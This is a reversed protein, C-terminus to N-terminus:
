RSSGWIRRYVDASACLKPQSYHEADAGGMGFRLVLGRMGAEVRARPDTSWNASTSRTFLRVRDGPVIRSHGGGDPFGGPARAGRCRRRFSQRRPQRGATDRSGVLGSLIPACGAIEFATFVVSISKPNRYRQGCAARADAWARSPGDKKLFARGSRHGLNSRVMAARRASNAAPWPAYGTGPLNPAQGGRPLIESAISAKWECGDAPHDFTRSAHGHRGIVHRFFSFDHRQDSRPKGTRNELGLRVRAQHIGSGSASNRRERCQHRGAPGFGRVISVTVPTGKTM